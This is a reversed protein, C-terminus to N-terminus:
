VRFRNRRCQKHSIFVNILKSVARGLSNATTVLRKSYAASVNLIVLNRSM